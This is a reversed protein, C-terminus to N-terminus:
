KLWETGFGGEGKETGGTEMLLRCSNDIRVSYRAPHNAAAM